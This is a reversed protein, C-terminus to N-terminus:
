ADGVLLPVALQHFVARAAAHDAALDVARIVLALRPALDAGVALGHAAARGVVVALDDDVGVVGVHDVHQGDAREDRAVAAPGPAAGPVEAAVVVREPDVGLVRVVHDQTVVVAHAHGVVAAAVPVVRVELREGLEVRDAVVHGVRVAHGTPELVVARLHRVARVRGAAGDVELHPLAHAAAVAHVVLELRARVAVEVVLRLETGDAPEVQPRALALADA